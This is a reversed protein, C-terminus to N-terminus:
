PTKLLQDFIRQFYEAPQYGRVTAETRSGDTRLTRIVFTPTGLVNLLHYEDFDRAVLVRIERQQLCVNLEDADLSTNKAVLDNLFSPPKNAATMLFGLTDWFKGQRSACRGIAFIRSSQDAPNDSSPVLFWQVKGTKIYQENLQPFVRLQFEECHSCKYSGFEVVMISAKDSGLSPRDRVAFPAGLRPDFADGQPPAGLAAVSSAALAVSFSWRNITRKVM